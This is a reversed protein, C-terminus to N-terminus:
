DRDTESELAALLQEPKVTVGTRGITRQLRRSLEWMERGYVQQDVTVTLGRHEVNCKVHASTPLVSIDIPVGTRQAWKALVALQTFTDPGDPQIATQHHDCYVNHIGGLEAMDELLEAVIALRGAFGSQATSTTTTM